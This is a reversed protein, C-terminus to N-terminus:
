KGFVKEVLEEILSRSFERLEEITIGTAKAANGLRRNIDNPNLKIENQTLDYRLLALAIEGKRKEDL